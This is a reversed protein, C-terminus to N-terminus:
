KSQGNKKQPLWISWTEKMIFTYSNRDLFVRIKKQFNNKRPMLYLYSSNSQQSVFSAKIWWMTEPIMWNLETWDSLRILSKAVGHVAAHWAKSDVVL